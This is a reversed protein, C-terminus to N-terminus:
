VEVMGRRHFVFQNIGTYEVYCCLGLGLLRWQGRAAAQEKAFGRYSIAELVAELARPYDGSDYRQSTKTTTPLEEATLLNRRRIEARGLNIEGALMDMLREHVFSAVPLGVGRYAGSPCKNTAVTRARARYKPVRYPGPIMLPTGLAELLHGHPFVGYAGRDCLTHADVAVIRGEADAAARM